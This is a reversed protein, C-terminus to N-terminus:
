RDPEAEWNDPLNIGPQPCSSCFMALDGRGPTRNEHAFGHAEYTKLNRFQRSVRRLERYRNAVLKPFAPATLRRLKQYYQYASTKCELNSMRFDELVNFSFVTKVNKFSAPFLRQELYQLDTEVETGTCSCKVVPLYHIGSKDVITIFKNGHEDKNPAKPLFNFHNEDIDEFMEDDGDQPEEGPIVEPDNVLGINEDNRPEEGHIFEPNNEVGINADPGPESLYGMEVDSDNNPTQDSTRDSMWNENTTKGKCKRGGHGLYIKVGTQWLAREQFFCGNWSEVRHFPLTEHRDRFCSKCLLANHDCSQCRWMEGANQCLVCVLNDDSVGELSVIFDL